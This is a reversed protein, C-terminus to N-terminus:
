RWFDVITEKELAKRCNNAQQETGLYLFGVIEDYSDLNLAAKVTRDRALDGTRWIGGYGLAQAAQQMSFLACGASQVQEIRPVKAHEKYKAIVTVVVPARLPMNRAKEIKASDDTNVAVAAALIDGLRERGQGTMVIFQWPKLGAHDPARLGVDIIQELESESPGPTTLKGCSYRNSLFDIPTTM